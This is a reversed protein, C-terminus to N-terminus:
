FMKKLGTMVIVLITTSNAQEQIGCVMVIYHFKSIGTNWVGDSDVTFGTKVAM